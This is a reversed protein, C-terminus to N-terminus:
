ATKDSKHLVDHKILWEELIQEINDFNWYPIRLLPINNDTCYQNKINDNQKISKLSKTDYHWGTYHQEGDFEILFVLKKEKNIIAFDFPLRQNKTKVSRCNDFRYQKKYTINFSDLIEAIKAEGKSTECYPCTVRYGDRDRCLFNTAQMYFLKKCSKCKLKLKMTNGKWKDTLLELNPANQKMWVEKINYITYPNHMSFKFPKTKSNKINNLIGLYRYGDDDEIIMKDYINSYGNTDIVKYGNLEYTKIAEKIDIKNQPSKSLEVSWCKDCSISGELINFLIADFEGHKPCIFKHKENTGKYIEGEKIAYKINKNKMMLKANYLSWDPYSTNFLMFESEKIIGSYSKPVIYGDKHKFLLKTHRNKYKDVESEILYWNKYKTLKLKETIDQIIDSKSKRQRVSQLERNCDPCRNGQNFDSYTMYFVHNNPCQIELKSSSNIYSTSLLIYGYREIEDKIYKYDLQTGSCVSCQRVNSHRFSTYATEFKRGCKCQIELKTNINIYEESLLKCESGSELEIFYKVEEHTFRRAM